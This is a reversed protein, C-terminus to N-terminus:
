KEKYWINGAVSVDNFAELVAKTVGHHSTGHYDTEIFEEDYDFSDFDHGCIIGGERVKPFYNEIDRKVQSYRHDGDIFVLEYNQVRDLMEDSKGKYVTIMDWFGCTKMNRKFEEYVNMKSAYQELVSGNGEFTDIVTLNGGFKKICYCIVAASQGTWTGIELVDRAQYRGLLWAMDLLNGNSFQNYPEGFSVEKNKHLLSQIM